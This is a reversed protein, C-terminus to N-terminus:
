PVFSEVTDQPLGELGASGGDGGGAVVIRGKVLGATVYGRARRLPPKISWRGTSPDFVEVSNLPIGGLTCGGIVYIKANAVVAAAGGRATPMAAERRWVGSADASEVTDHPVQMYSGAYDTFEQGGFVYLRGGYVACAMDGRGVSLGTPLTTWAQTAPDYCFSETANFEISFDRNPDYTEPYSGYPGWSANKFGGVVYLKGDLAAVAASGRPQPLPTVRGWQHGDFRFDDTNLDLGASGPRIGGVVYLDGEVSAAQGFGGVAPLDGQRTWASGDYAWVENHYYVSDTARRVGGLAYLWDAGGMNLVGFASAMGAVPLAAQIQDAPAGLNVSASAAQNSLLTVSRTAEIGMGGSRAHLVWTGPAIPALRHTGNYLSVNKPSLPDDLWVDAPATGPIGELTVDLSAPYRVYRTEFAPVRQGAIVDTAIAAADVLDAYDAGQRIVQEVLAQVQAADLTEALHTGLARDSALVREFVVGRPTTSRGIVAEARASAPVDVTTQITGGPVVADGADLRELTVIRNPGSILSSVTVSATAESSLNATLVVPQSMGPGDVRIRARTAPAAWQTTRGEGLVLRVEGLAPVATELPAVLPKPSCGLLGIGWAALTWFGLSRRSGLPM